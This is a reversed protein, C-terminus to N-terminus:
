NKTSKQDAAQQKRFSCFLVAVLDPDPDWRLIDLWSLIKYLVKFKQLSVKALSRYDPRTNSGLEMSACVPLAKSVDTSHCNKVFIIQGAPRFAPLFHTSYMRAKICVSM